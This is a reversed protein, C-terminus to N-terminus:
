NNLDYMGICQIGAIGAPIVHVQNATYPPLEHTILYINAGAIDANVVDM